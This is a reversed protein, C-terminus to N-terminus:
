RQRTSSEREENLGCLIQPYAIRIVRRIICSFSRIRLASLIRRTPFCFKRISSASLRQPYFLLSQPYFTRIIGFNMLVSELTGWVRALGPSRTMRAHFVQKNNARNNMDVQLYSHLYVYLHLHLSTHFLMVILFAIPSHRLWFGGALKDTWKRRANACSLLWCAPNGPV